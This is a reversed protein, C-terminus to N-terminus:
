TMNFDAKDNNVDLFFIHRGTKNRRGQNDKNM